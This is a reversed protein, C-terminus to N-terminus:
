RRAFLADFQSLVPVLAQVVPDTDGERAAQAAVSSSTPWPGNSEILAEVRSVFVWRLWDTFPMTNIGFAGM